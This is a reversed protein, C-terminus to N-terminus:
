QMTGGDPLMDDSPKQGTSAKFQKRKCDDQKSGRCYLAITEKVALTQSDSYKQIFGCNPLNPCDPVVKFKQLSQELQEAQKALGKARQSVEEIVATTEQSTAAVEETGSAAKKSLETVQEIEKGTEKADTSILDSKSAIETIKEGINVINHFMEDFFIIINQLSNEEAVVAENAYDVHQVTDRVGVNVENVIEIVKQGSLDVQEALKRVEEAVVAFGRGQEGARAAEIAANLALLNTQNAIDKIVLIIEGIEKSKDALRTISESITQYIQKNDNLKAKQDQVLGSGKEVAKGVQVTLDKSDAININMSDLRSVIERIRENGKVTSKAQETAGNALNVITHSTKESAILIEETSIIMKNAEQVVENGLVKTDTVLERVNIVVYGFTEAIIGLEDKQELHLNKSFDYHSLEELYSLIKHLTENLPRIIFYYILFLAIAIVLLVIVVISLIIENRKQALDGVYIGTGVVWQWPAFGKVYSFKAEPTSSGPQPWEYRVLGEGKNKAVKAFEDFIALGTSDKISSLNKGDLDPSTPHMVMVPTYDNIWFYEKGGYRLARIEQKALEKAQAETYIGKQAQDYYFQIINYSTETLNKLKVESSNELTHTIVPIIYFAVLSIFCISLFGMVLLFKTSLRFNKFINM